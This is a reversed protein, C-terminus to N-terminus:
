RYLKLWTQSSLLNKNNIDSSNLQSNSYNPIESKFSHKKEVRIRNLRINSILSLM